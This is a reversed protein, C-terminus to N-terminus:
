GCATLRLLQDGSEGLERGDGAGVWRELASEYQALESPNDAALDIRVCTDGGDNWAVYWDGGWGNAIDRSESISFVDSLLAIWAAEGWVGQEFIPGDAPPPSVPSDAATGALFSAPDLILESASPPSLIAQDVASQGQAWLADAFTEGYNYRGFQLELFSSNFESFSVSRPLANIAVREEDLEAQSLTARYRNEIVRASGEIVSSFTWGIEDERDDYSPRDLNFAQDELAHVLEHVLTTKTLTNIEGARLVIQESESDYYGLVGADGFLTWIEELSTDPSIIGMTQYINTFNQYGTANEVADQSVLTVWASAFQAEDLLDIQPRREFTLGREVEVYAALEDVLVDLETDGSTGPRATTTTTPAEATETVAPQADTDAAQEDSLEPPQASTTSTTEVDAPVSTSVAPADGDVLPETPTEVGDPVVTTTQNEVQADTRTAGANADPASGTSAESREDDGSDDAQSSDPAVDDQASDENGDSAQALTSSSASESEGVREQAVTASSGCAGLLVLAAVLTSCGRIGFHKLFWLRM